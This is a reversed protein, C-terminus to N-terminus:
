EDDSDLEKEAALLKVYIGNITFEGLETEEMKQVALKIEEITFLTDESM